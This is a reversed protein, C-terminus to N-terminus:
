VEVKCVQAGTLPPSMHADCMDDADHWQGVSAFPRGVLTQAADIAGDLNKSVSAVHTPKGSFAYYVSTTSSAWNWGRM